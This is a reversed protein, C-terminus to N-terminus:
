LNKYNLSIKLIVQAAAFQEHAKLRFCTCASLPRSQLLIYDEQKDLESKKAISIKNTAQTQADSRFIVLSRILPIM